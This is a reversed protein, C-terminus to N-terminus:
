KSQLKLLREITEIPPFFANGAISKMLADLGALTVFELHSITLRAGRMRDGAEYERGVFFSCRDVKVPDGSREGNEWFDVEWLAGNPVVLIPLVLSIFASKHNEGDWTAEDALDSASSLAQSWKEFVEADNAILTGDNARGVQALSKGVFAQAKYDSLGNDIRIVQCVKRFAPVDVMSKQPASTSDFAFVLEHFSEERPRPVCTVLLPFSETLNKCEIACRVRLLQRRDDKQARIDFQRAKKTVPDTYSGGHQCCFGLESMREVCALEFAFDSSTDLFEILDTAIIPGNKLKPM